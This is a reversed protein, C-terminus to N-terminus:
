GPRPGVTQREPPVCTLSRVSYRMIELKRHNANRNMLASLDPDCATAAPPSRTHSRHQKVILFTCRIASMVDQTTLQYRLLLLLCASRPKCHQLHRRLAKKQGHFRTRMGQVSLTAACAITASRSQKMVSRRANEVPAVAQRPETPLSGKEGLKRRTLILTLGARIQPDKMM